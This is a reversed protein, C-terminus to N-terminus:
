DGKGELVLRDVIRPAEGIGEDGEIMESAVVTTLVPPVAVCWISQSAYM